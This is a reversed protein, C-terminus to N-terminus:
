HRGKRVDFKVNIFGIGNRRGDGNGKGEEREETGSGKRDM